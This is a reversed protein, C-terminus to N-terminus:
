EKNARITDIIKKTSQLRQIDEIKEDKGILWKDVSVFQNKKKVHLGNAMKNLLKVITFTDKNGGNKYNLAKNVRQKYSSKKKPSHKFYDRISTIRIDKSLEEYEMNKNHYKMNALEETTLIQIKDGDSTIKITHYWMNTQQTNRYGHDHKYLEFAVAGIGGVQRMLTRFAKLEEISYANFTATIDRDYAVYEYEKGNSGKKRGVSM